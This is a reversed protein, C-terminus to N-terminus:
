LATVTIGPPQIRCTTLLTDCTVALRNNFDVAFLSFGSATPQITATFTLEFTGDPLVVDVFDECADGIFDAGRRADTQDPNPLTPCNDAVDPVTDDDSDAFDGTSSSIACADGLGDSNADEQSPNSVLPCNDYRNLHGDGDSDGDALLRTFVSRRLELRSIRLRLTVERPTDAALVFGTGGCARALDDVLLVNDVFLCPHIGLFDFSGFGEIEATASEVTWAAVQFGPISAGASVLGSDFLQVRLTGNPPFLEDDTECSPGVAGLVAVALVIAGRGRPTV